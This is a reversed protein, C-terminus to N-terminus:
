STYDVDYFHACNQLIHANRHYLHMYIEISAYADEAAYKIQEVSLEPADWNSLIIQLDKNIQLGAINLAMKELSAPAFGGAHALVRLDIASKVKLDHHKFLLESDKYIEVGVKVLNAQM